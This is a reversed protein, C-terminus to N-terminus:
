LCSQGHTHSVGEGERFIQAETYTRVRPTLKPADSSLDSVMTTSNSQSIRDAGTNVRGNMDRDCDSCLRFYINKVGTYTDRLTHSHTLPHTNKDTNIYLKVLGATFLKGVTVNRIRPAKM